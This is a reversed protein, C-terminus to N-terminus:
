LFEAKAHRMDLCINIPNHNKICNRESKQHRFAKSFMVSYRSNKKATKLCCFCSYHCLIQATYPFSFM